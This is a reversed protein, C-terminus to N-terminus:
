RLKKIWKEIRKFSLENLQACDLQYQGQSLLNIENEELLPPPMKTLTKSKGNSLHDSGQDITYTSPFKLCETWAKSTLSLYDSNKRASAICRKLLANLESLTTTNAQESYISKLHNLEKIASRRWANKKYRYIIQYLVFIVVVFCVIALIWWGIAPPWSSIASPSHIDRLQELVSDPNM